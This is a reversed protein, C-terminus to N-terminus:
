QISNVIIINIINSKYINCLITFINSSLSSPQESSKSGGGVELEKKSSTCVRWQEKSGMDVRRQKKSEM